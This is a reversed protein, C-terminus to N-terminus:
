SNKIEKTHEKNFVRYRKMGRKTEEEGTKPNLKSNKVPKVIIQSKEGKQVMRNLNKWQLFTGWENSKYEKQESVFGLNLQNKGDYYNQSIVNKQEIM